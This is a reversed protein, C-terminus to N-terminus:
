TLKNCFKLYIRNGYQIMLYKISKVIFLRIYNCITKVVYCYRVSATISYLLTTDIQSHCSICVVRNSLHHNRWWRTRAIYAILHTIIHFRVRRRCRTGCIWEVHVVFCIVTMRFACQCGTLCRLFLKASINITASMETANILASGCHFLFRIIVHRFRSFRM